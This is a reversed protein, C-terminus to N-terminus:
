PDLGLVISVFEEAKRVVRYAERATVEKLGYDAKIRITALDHLFSRLASPYTKRRHILRGAFAAQVEDHGWNPSSIGSSILAVIAANYAAYYARNAANNYRGNRSNAARAASANM